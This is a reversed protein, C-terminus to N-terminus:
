IKVTVIIEKLQKFFIIVSINKKYMVSTRLHKFFAASYRRM